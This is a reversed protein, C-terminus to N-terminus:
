EEGLEGVKSMFLCSNPGFKHRPVIIMNTLVLWIRFQYYRYM